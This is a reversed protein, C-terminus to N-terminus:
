YEVCKVWKGQQLYKEWTKNIFSAIGLRNKRRLIQYLRLVLLVMYLFSRNFSRDLPWKPDQPHYKSQGVLLVGFDSCPNFTFNSSEHKFLGVKISEVKLPTFFVLSWNALGEPSLRSSSSTSCSSGGGFRSPRYDQVIWQLLRNRFISMSGLKSGRWFGM